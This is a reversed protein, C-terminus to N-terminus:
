QLGKLREEIEDLEHELKATGPLERKKEKGAKKLKKSVQVHHGRFAHKKRPLEGLKFHPFQERLGSMDRSLERALMKLKAVEERKKERLPKLQEYKQLIGVVSKSIELLARRIEVSGQIGVYFDDERKAM